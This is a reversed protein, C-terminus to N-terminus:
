LFEGGMTWKNKLLIGDTTAITYWNGKVLFDMVLIDPMYGIHIIM